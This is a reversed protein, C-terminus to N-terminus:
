AEERHACVERLYQSLPLVFGYSHKELLLRTDLKSMKTDILSSYQIIQHINHIM